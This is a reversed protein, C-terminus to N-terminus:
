RTMLWVILSSVASIVGGILLYFFTQSIWKNSRKLERVEEFLTKLQEVTTYKFRELEMLRMKADAWSDELQKIRWNEENM